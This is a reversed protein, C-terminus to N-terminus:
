ADPLAPGSSLDLFHMRRAIGRYDVGTHAVLAVALDCRRVVDASIDTSQLRRGGIEVEPVYPDHYHVEAGYELLRSLVSLAPANRQDGIDPKYSVGLVLVTANRLAIGQANLARGIRELTRDPMSTNLDVALELLHMPEGMKRARWALYRPDVPICEGGIGPGPYFPMFGFPKTAAAHIVERVDLALRDCVLSLENAFAINLNRFANELLKAMEAAEPSSVISVSRTVRLYLAAARDACAPTMGGVIRPTTAISYDPNGPDIREPVFALFFDKGAAGVAATLPPLLIERTTGPYSTSELVVLTNRAVHRSVMEAADRLASLDPEGDHLPTPVAIVVVRCENLVSWDTTPTFAGSDLARRLQARGATEVGPDGSLLGAVRRPDIDVGYVRYDAEALALALPLGVYGVGVVAMRSGSPPASAVPSPMIM